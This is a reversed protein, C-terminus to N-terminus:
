KIKFIKAGFYVVIGGIVMGGIGSSVSSTLWGALGGAIAAIVVVMILVTASMPEMFVGILLQKVAEFAYILIM